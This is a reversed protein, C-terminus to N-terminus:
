KVDKSMIDTRCRNEVDWIWGSWDVYPYGINVAIAIFSDLCWGLSPLHDQTLINKWTIPLKQNM